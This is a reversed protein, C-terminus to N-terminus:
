DDIARSKSKRRRSRSSKRTTDPPSPVMIAGINKTHDWGTRRLFEEDDLVLELGSMDLGKTLERLYQDLEQGNRANPM